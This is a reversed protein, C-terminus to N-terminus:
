LTNIEWYTLSPFSHTRVHILLPCLTKSAPCCFLFNCSQSCAIASDTASGLARGATLALPPTFDLLRSGMAVQYLLAKRCSEVSSAAWFTHRVAMQFATWSHHVM